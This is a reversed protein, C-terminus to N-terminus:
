IWPKLQGSEAHHLQDIIKYVIGLVSLRSPKNFCCHYQHFILSAASQASLRQRVVSCVSTHSYVRSSEYVGGTSRQSASRDAASRLGSDEVKESISAFRGM